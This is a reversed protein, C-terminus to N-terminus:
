LRTRIWGRWLPQPTGGIKRRMGPSLKLFWVRYYALNLLDAWALLAKLRQRAWGTDRHVILRHVAVTQGGYDIKYGYAGRGAEIRTIGAQIMREFMLIFVVKGASLRDVDPDLRRAPLRWHATHGAVLSFETALAGGTGNLRDLQVLKDAKTRAAVDHYFAASGPWDSFHGGKDTALWQQGHFTVFDDFEAADPAFDDRTMAFTEQLGNVDRRFQSRRKKTLLALYDDFKPAFDFIVHSGASEDRVALRGHTQTQGDELGKLVALYGAVGSVPTFSVAACGLKGLLHHMAAQLVPRAWADELSLQFAICNPDFGALRAVRMPLPGVWLVRTCFPLVGVLVGDRRAMLCALGQGAGFHTWWVAVWDPLTFVDAGVRTALAQWEDRLPALDAPETIWALDLDPASAGASM